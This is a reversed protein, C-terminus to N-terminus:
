RVAGIRTLPWIRFLLRGVVSDRDACVILASRGDPESGGCSLCVFFCGEPVQAPLVADRLGVQGGAACPGDLLTGNVLVRGAGDVEVRDGEAAIVRRVLLTHNQYFAAVSGPTCRGYAAAVVIDGERLTDAMGDGRIRLVPFIRLLLTMLVAAAALVSLARGLARLYTRRYTERRLEAELQRATPAGTLETLM